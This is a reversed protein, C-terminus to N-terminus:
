NTVFEKKHNKLTELLVKIYVLQLKSPIKQLHQIMEAAGLGEALSSLFENEIANRVFLDESQYLYDILILIEEAKKTTFNEACYNGFYNLLRYEAWEGPFKILMSLPYIEPFKMRFEQEVSLNM